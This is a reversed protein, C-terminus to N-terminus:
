PEHIDGSVDASVNTKQSENGPLWDQRLVYGTVGIANKAVKKNWEWFLPYFVGRDHSKILNLNYQGAIIFGGIVLFILVAMTLKKM